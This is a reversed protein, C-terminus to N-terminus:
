MKWWARGLMSCAVGSVIGTILMWEPADGEELHVLYSFICLAAFVGLFCLLIFKLKDKM